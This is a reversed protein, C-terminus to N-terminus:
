QMADKNKMDIGVPFICLNSEVTNASTHLLNTRKLISLLCMRVQFANKVTIVVISMENQAVSMVQFAKKTKFIKKQM